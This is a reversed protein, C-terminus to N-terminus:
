SSHLGLSPVHSHPMAQSSVGKTSLARWRSAIMNLTVVTPSKWAHAGNMLVADKTLAVFWDTMATITIFVLLTWETKHAGTIQVLIHRNVRNAAANLTMPVIKMQGNASPVQLIFFHFFITCHLTDRNGLSVKHGNSFGPADAHQNSLYGGLQWTCMQM